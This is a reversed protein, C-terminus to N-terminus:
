LTEQITLQVTLDSTPSQGMAYATLTGANNVVYIGFCGESQLSQYMASDQNIDVLTNATVTVGRPSGDEVSALMTQVASSVDTELKNRNATISENLSRVDSAIDDRIGQVTANYAGELANIKVDVTERAEAILAELRLGLTSIEIIDTNDIEIVDFIHGHVASGQM